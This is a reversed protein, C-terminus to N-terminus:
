PSPPLARELDQSCRKADGLTPSSWGAGFAMVGAREAAAIAISAAAGNVLLRRVLRMAELEDDAKKQTLKKQAVWRPYAALRMRLERDVCAVARALDEPLDAQM